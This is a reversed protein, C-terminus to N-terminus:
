TFHNLFPKNVRSCGVNPENRSRDLDFDIAIIIILIDLRGYYVEKRWVIVAPANTEAPIVFNSGTTYALHVAARIWLFLGVADWVNEANGM